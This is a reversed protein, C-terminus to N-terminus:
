LNGCLCSVYLLNGIRDGGLLIDYIFAIQFLSGLRTDGPRSLNTEQNLGRGTEIEGSEILEDVTQKHTAQLVDSRKCSGGAVNVIDSIMLFFMSISPVDKSAGVLALQLRHSWCHQYYAFRNLDNIIAQLGNFEGRMNSAGDFGLGRVRQMDVNRHQQEQLIAQLLTQASTDAVHVIEFFREHLIGTIEDVFRHAIVMQEKKSADRSEDALIAFPSSGQECSLLRRVLEAHAHLIEKQIKPSVMLSNQPGNTSSIRSYDADRKRFVKLLELFNGKNFSGPGERHGRLACGQRILLRVADVSAELRRFNDKAVDSSVRALMTDVHAQDRLLVQGAAVALRHSSNPTTGEHKRYRELSKKWNNFGAKSFESDSSNFLFCYFCYAADQNPSYELWAFQKFWDARFRRPPSQKNLPYLSSDEWAPQYPGLQLYARRIQERMGHDYDSIQKRSGPDRELTAENLESAEADLGSRVEVPCHTEAQHVPQSPSQLVYDPIPRQRKLFRDSVSGHIM